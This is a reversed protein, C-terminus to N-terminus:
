GGIEYFHRNSTDGAEPKDMLARRIAERYGLEKINFGIDSFLCPRLWGDSTLRLRNCMSCVGGDGGIVAYFRGKSLNMHCIYRVELSRERAFEAVSLADPEDPSESVVCNLKVPTLGVDIAAEIGRIVQRVDGGRTITSFREPDITDLSINVRHLGAKALSEAFEPLFIGNTTMALDRIDDINALMEVLSVINRRVLPEGGTIRVKDIGMDVAVNVFDYIEEFSLIEDHRLLSIGKEPMCYSCRLNCRDTVAIRLYNINRNCSDYM